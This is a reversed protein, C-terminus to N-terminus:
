DTNGQFNIIEEECIRGTKKELVTVKYSNTKGETVTILNNKSFDQILEQENGEEDLLVIRYEAEIPYNGVAKVEYERWKEDVPEYVIGFTQEPMDALKEEVTDYFFAERGQKSYNAMIDAFVESYEVAGKGSLHHIDIFSEDTLPLVDNKCLNFDYYDIDHQRAYEKMYSYYVTYDGMGALHFYSFPTTTLVLEIGEKKCLDVMKNLYKLSYESIINDEIRALNYPAIMEVMKPNGAIGPVITTGKYFNDPEEGNAYRDSRKSKIVREFRQLDLLYNGYRRPVFFGDLYREPGSANLLFEVRNWNNQMNDTICYIYEMQIDSREEPIDRYQRYYMDLYVKKINNKKLVEKLLYYSGDIKQVPTTALYTNEGLKEDLIRPDYGFLVHSSGLFLTEINEQEYLYEIAYRVEDESNDILIYTLINDVLLVSVVIISIGLCIKLIKKM